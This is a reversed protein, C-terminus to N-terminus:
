AKAAFPLKDIIDTVIGFKKADDTTFMPGAQLTKAIEEKTKGTEAALIEINRELLNAIVAMNEKHVSMAATQSGVSFTGEHLFFRCGKLAQRKKGALFITVAASDVQVYGVTRVEFPLQKLLVYARIASDMDGGGSSLYLTLRKEGSAYAQTTTWVLLDGVVKADIGGTLMYWLEQM